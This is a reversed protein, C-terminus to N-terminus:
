LEWLVLGGEQNTGVDPKRSLSVVLTVPKEKGEKPTSECNCKTMKTLEQHKFEHLKALFTHTQGLIRKWTRELNNMGKLIM